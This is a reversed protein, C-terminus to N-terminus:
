VLGGTRRRAAPLDAQRVEAMTPPRLESVHADWREGTAVSRMTVEHGRCRVVAGVGDHRRSWLPVDPGSVFWRALVGCLVVDALEVAEEPVVASPLGVLPRGGGGPVLVVTGTVGVLDFLDRLRDRAERAMLGADDPRTM